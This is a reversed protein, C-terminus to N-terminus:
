EGNSTEGVKEVAGCWKVSACRVSLSSRGVSILVITAGIMRLFSRVQTICLFGCAGPAKTRSWPSRLLRARNRTCVPEAPTVGASSGRVKPVTTVHTFRQLLHDIWIMDMVQHRAPCGILLQRQGRARHQVVLDSFCFLNTRNRPPGLQGVLM